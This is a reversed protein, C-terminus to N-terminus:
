VDENEDGDVDDVAHHTADYVADFKRCAEKQEDTLKKGALRDIVAKYDIEEVMQELEKQNMKKNDM